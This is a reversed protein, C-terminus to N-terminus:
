KIGNNESKMVTETSDAHSWTTPSIAQWVSDKM